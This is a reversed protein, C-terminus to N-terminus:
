IEGVAPLTFSFTSGVGPEGSFILEGNQLALLRQALYLRLGSGPNDRVIPQNTARWFPRGVNAFDTETLGVGSDAVNVLLHSGLEDISIRTVSGVPSYRIANDLLDILIMLAIEFDAYALLPKEPKTFMIQNERGRAGPQMMGVARQVLNAIDISALDVRLRGQHVALVQGVTDVLSLASDAQDRISRLSATQETTLRGMKGSQLRESQARVMLMTPRLSEQLPTLLDLIPATERRSSAKRAEAELKVEQEESLLLHPLAEKLWNLPDSPDNSEVIPVEGTGNVTGDVQLRPRDPVLSANLDEGLGNTSVRPTERTSITDFIEALRDTVTRESGTDHTHGDGLDDNGPLYGQNASLAAVAMADQLQLDLNIMESDLHRLLEVVEQLKESAGPPAAARFRALITIAQDVTLMVVLKGM